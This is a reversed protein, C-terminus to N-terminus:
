LVVEVSSLSDVFVTDAVATDTGSGGLLTDEGHEGLLVDNGPGGLLSDADFGGVIYDNGAGGVITDRGYGDQLWDDGSSGYLIDSGDGGDAFFQIGGSLKVTDDGDGGYVLVSAINSFSQQVGNIKINVGSGSTSVEIVEDTDDGLIKIANAVDGGPCVVVTALLRRSELLMM